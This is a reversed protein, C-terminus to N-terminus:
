VTGSHENAINSYNTSLRLRLPHLILVKTFMAIFQDPTFTKYRISWGSSSCQKALSELQERVRHIGPFRIRIATDNYRVKKLLSIKLLSKIITATCNGSYCVLKRDTIAVSKCMVVRDDAGSMCLSLLFRPSVTSGILRTQCSGDSSRALQLFKDSGAVPADSNKTRLSSNNIWEVLVSPRCLPPLRISSAAM